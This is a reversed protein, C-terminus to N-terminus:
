SYRCGARQRASWPEGYGPLSSARETIFTDMTQHMLNGIDLPSISIIEEPQELPVVGLLREVFYAHPCGAYHELATPSVRRKGDAFDPLGESGLLNGDFRSFADGARGRILALARTVTEDPPLRGASAAQIRWDQETAPMPVTTLSRAYSPSSRIDASRASEWETAALRRNGTLARLTPLLWRSPLRRTSRRLDGRPFCAVVRPAADFAALLHRHKADLRDRYSALEGHSLDRVRELLLADEALRGPYGDEALGAVYLVDVDLGIAASLPAVLIGDGFRGVRPLATELELTLVEVLGGLDATPEFAALEALGRIVSEATVAAHQEETPLQALAQADGYLDRFLDVAWSSLEPWTALTGGRRLRDRLTTAFRQLGVVNDLDRQLREARASSADVADRTAVLEAEVATAYSTLRQSWDEGGVVAASRSLREWRSTPLRSGDFARTPAESVATFLDARPLDSEALRLIDLFGRGIAREIVPRTGAGNVAIGAAALHEHLLRAYPQTSAYLVAVRHAPTQALVAVVDRVICRVEDDSDSAHLVEHATRPKPHATRPKSHATRPKPPQADVGAGIRSLSELVVRDARRVGTLGVIVIVAAADALARALRSEALTLQQPLYIVVQGLEEDPGETALRSAAADILDTQDYWSAALAATVGRHLVVLDRSLASASAVGDLGADSLDRLERHAGVLARITAPHGKVPDFISPASELAARWAASVIPTTAPRRPQLRTAGLREALRTLTALQLGAVGNGHKDLGNALQRRAVIGALDHPLLMTVPAMPHAVKAERVAERLVALAAAGYRTTVVQLAM